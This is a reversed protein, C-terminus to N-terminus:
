KISQALPAEKKQPKVKDIADILEQQSIKIDKVNQAKGGVYKKLAAIAARNTVAAIEAGSFGDTLEVLKAIDVDSALPKKKTHIEFINQRGKADPNPVEIIRDFRGPRLLAEDVIDLRNTAGVILVNHLEELGDIETLIQSVVSETVHSESGGSGRRPVLADVEDLFIICPAAQRAKRFIERVGKESEGVWKSLLEPGKISIFNSETMKALAKAILTKGTGPPGHLLIGKPTEVDVYDFAEKHKIPWEVAERLEEKLEDLGGVDDWSVNPIQVQVERLASPRVEKLADRFDESSIEIKQLIESSIKDEDLDIEPLIRRLSRMAAEKSLVELDAGVFGHTTKSIQKLDVKEDIPMGRTHISLIEFRGEDDPIGIEIERDFRGPRRLAPDISDPRNTAAIVVVKGRSKMGDMLTLLQSVIRKEVEGSVEDRKPAISDIEDIFIISPSNEEAQNFIERIKEESEGYYKGMIEPGSLSIFHANTEGAVAKALLTKGTGPPGYLLVGKPAEVGIKDFLEPHRMPLEVMERIKQVENKLGGLEDYTIRPVSADVSKTMTGLKFITNETVIVPKSPKTSTVIFQVRGGMQTNLSLTDGTTFVHNLYNYTMYEQLGEAAIKETPSLVIQEANSAEVSKLSIKDGIGAGINQRTMGDIKIVGTGYEEPNGPWLKVHTKKNYTLELIQGTNWKQDEIIKPDVIARGRGVHQQPIEDVKLIIESM